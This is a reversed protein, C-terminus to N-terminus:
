RQRTLHGVVGIAGSDLVRVINSEGDAFVNEPTALAYFGVDVHLRSESMRIKSQLSVSNHVPVSHGHNPFDAVTTVGGAAAAKTGNIFGEWVVEKDGGKEEGRKGDGENDDNDDVGYSRRPSL